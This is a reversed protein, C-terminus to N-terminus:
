GLAAFIAEVDVQDFDQHRNCFECTVTIIKKAQVLAKAEERGVTLLAREMRERNCNCSFYVPEADFLRIDEESFLRKLLVLNPLKLLETSTLTASLHM